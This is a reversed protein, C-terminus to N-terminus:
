AVQSRQGTIETGRAETGAVESMNRHGRVETGTIETTLGRVETGTVPSKQGQGVESM